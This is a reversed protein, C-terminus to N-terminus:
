FVGLSVDARALVVTKGGERRVALVTAAYRNGQGCSCPAKYAGAKHGYMNCRHPRECRVGAPLSMTEENVSPLLIEAQGDTAVALAGHGGHRALDPLRLDNFEVIVDEATPPLGGILLAPSRGRGGCQRCRGDVPVERGDWQADRFRVTLKVDPAIAAERTTGGCGVLVSVSVFVLVLSRRM